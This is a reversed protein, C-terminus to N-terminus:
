PALEEELAHVIRATRLGARRSLEAVAEASVADLFHFCTEDDPLFLSRVYSPM